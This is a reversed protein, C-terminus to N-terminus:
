EQNEKHYKAALVPINNIFTAEDNWAMELDKATKNYRETLVLAVVVVGFANRKWEWERPRHTSGPCAARGNQRSHLRLSVSLLHKFSVSSLHKSSVYPHMM